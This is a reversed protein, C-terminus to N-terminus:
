KIMKPFLRQMLGKKHEKLQEIKESQATILEDLASLCSAIKQQEEPKPILFSFEKIQKQSLM